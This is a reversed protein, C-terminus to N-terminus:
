SGAPRRYRKPKLVVKLAWARADQHMQKRGEPTSTDVPQKPNRKAAKEAAMRKRTEIFENLDTEAILVPRGPLYALQGGRRLRTIKSASCRLIEAVEPETLFRDTM